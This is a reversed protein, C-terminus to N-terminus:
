DCNHLTRIRQSLPFNILKAFKTESGSDPDLALPYRWRGSTWQAHRSSRWHCGM